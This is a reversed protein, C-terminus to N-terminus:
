YAFRMSLKKIQVSSLINLLQVFMIMCNKVIAIRGKEIREQQNSIEHHNTNNQVVCQMNLTKLIVLFIGKNCEFMISLKINLKVKVQQTVFTRINNYVQQPMIKLGM